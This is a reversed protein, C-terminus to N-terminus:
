TELEKEQWRAAVWCKMSFPEAHFLCLRRPEDDTNSASGAGDEANAYQLHQVPRTDFCMEDDALPRRARERM